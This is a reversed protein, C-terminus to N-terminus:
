HFQHTAATISYGASGGADGTATGTAAVNKWAVNTTSVKGAGGTSTRSQGVAEWDFGISNLLGARENSMKATKNARRQNSVWQGLQPDRNYKVPVRADGHEMKYAVLRLYMENWSDTHSLAGWDFGISSLMHVRDMSMKNNKSRFLM